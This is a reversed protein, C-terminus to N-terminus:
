LIWWEDGDSYVDDCPHLIGTLTHTTFKDITESGNPTIIVTNTSSVDTKKVHWTQGKVDAAPPLNVIINESTADCLLIYSVTDVTYPTTTIDISVVTRDRIELDFELSEFRLRITKILDNIYDIVKKSQEEELRRPEPLRGKFKQLPEVM